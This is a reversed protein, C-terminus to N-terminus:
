LLNDTSLFILCDDDTSMNASCHMVCEYADKSNMLECVMAGIEMNEFCAVGKSYTRMQWKTPTRQLVYGIIKTNQIVLLDFYWEGGKATIIDTVTAGISIRYRKGDKTKAVRLDTGYTRTPKKRFNIEAQHKNYNLTIM